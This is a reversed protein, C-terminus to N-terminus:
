GWYACSTIMNIAYKNLIADAIENNFEINLGLDGTTYSKHLYYYDIGNKDEIEKIIDSLKIKSADM